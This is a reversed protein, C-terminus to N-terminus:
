STILLTLFTLVLGLILGCVIVKPIFWGDLKAFWNHRRSFMMFIVCVALAIFIATGLKIAEEMPIIGYTSRRGHSSIIPTVIGPISCNM